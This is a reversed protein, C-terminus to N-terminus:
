KLNEKLSSTPTTYRPDRRLAILEPSADVLHAPYGLSRARALSALAADRRGSLEYVTAARFQNDASTPAASLARATWDLAAGSQELYALYLGMRSMLAADHTTGQLQMALLDAARRYANRADPTRGPLWRLADALNAWRLYYRPSGKDSSVAREFADAAAPYEGRAYLITGLNSYLRGDPRLQLGQQVIQLAEDSRNLRLLTASLNAYAYVSDPELQLSHRFAAEAARYDGQQYRLTGLLDALRRETPLAAMAERLLADAESLRSDAILLNVRGALAELNGPELELARRYYREAEKYKGELRAVDGSAVHALALQDDLRLAQQASARARELWAPDRGDGSFRLCYALALGAAAGAHRPQRQALESFVQIATGISGERDFHRLEAMGAQMGARASLIPLVASRWLSVQWALVACLGAAALMRWRMRWLRQLMARWRWASAPQPTVAPSLMRIRQRLAEMSAPRQGPDTATMERVLLALAGEQEPFAWQASSSQMLAAALALGQLQPFPVTGSILEYLVVGLAYIDAQATAPRGRLREPALYALTGQPEQSLVSTTALPDVYRALGFDLIRVVGDSQLMINSSKLDGHVLGAAHAEAMAAAVQDIVAPASIPLPWGEQLYKRLTYGNVLEMVIAQSHDAVDDVAYIRVFAAHSLSANLQAERLLADPPLRAGPKLCKIAVSRRLREDWAEFVQGFGGEGLLRRM